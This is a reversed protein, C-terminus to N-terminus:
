RARRAQVAERQATGPLRRRPRYERAAAEGGGAGGAEGGRVARVPWRARGTRPHDRHDAVQRHRAPGPDGCPRRAAREGRGAGAIRGHGGRPRATRGPDGRRCRCRRPLDAADGARRWGGAGAGAPPGGPRSEGGAGPRAVDPIECVLVPRPGACRCRGVLRRPGERCRRRGRGLRHPQLRGRRLRAALHRFEGEANRAPQPERRDRHCGRAPPLDAVRGRARDRRAAARAARPARHHTDRSRALVARRTRPVADPVGTEERATRADTMLDRLRRALDTPPCACACCNTASGTRARPRTTPRRSARPRPPPRAPAAASRSAPSRRRRGTRRARGRGGGRLRLRPRRGTRRRRFRCGRRGPDRVGRSRGPKPLALLRNRTSLDLLARRAEELAQRLETM